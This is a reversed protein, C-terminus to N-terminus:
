PRTSDRAIEVIARLDAVNPVEGDREWQDLFLRLVRQASTETAADNTPETTEQARSQDTVITLRTRFDGLKLSRRLDETTLGLFDAIDAYHGRQPNGLGAEWRAITPQTVAFREGLETQNLGEDLRRSRLAEGFTRHRSESHPQPVTEGEVKLVLPQFSIRKWM